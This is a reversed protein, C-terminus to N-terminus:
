LEGDTPEPIIAAGNWAAFRGDAANAVTFDSTFGTLDAPTTFAFKVFHDDKNAHSAVTTKTVGGFTVATNQGPQDGIGFLYITYRTNPLMAFSGSVDTRTSTMTNEFGGLSVSFPSATNTDHVMYDDLIANGFTFGGGAFTSNGTVTVTLNSIQNPSGDAHSLWAGAAGTLKETVGADVWPATGSPTREKNNVDILLAAAQTTGPIGGIAILSFFGLLKRHPKAWLPLLSTKM